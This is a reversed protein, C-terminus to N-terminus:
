YIAGSCIFAKRIVACITHWTMNHTQGTIIMYLGMLTVYEKLYLCKTCLGTTGIFLLYFVINEFPFNKKKKKKKCFSATIGQNTHYSKRNQFIFM